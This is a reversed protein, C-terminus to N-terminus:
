RNTEVYLSLAHHATSCYGICCWGSRVRTGLCIVENM